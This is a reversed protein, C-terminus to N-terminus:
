VFELHIHSTYIILSIIPTLFEFFKVYMSNKKRLIMTFHAICIIYIKFM